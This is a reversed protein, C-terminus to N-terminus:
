DIPAWKEGNIVLDDGDKYIPYSGDQEIGPYSNYKGFGSLVISTGKISYTGTKRSSGGSGLSETIMVSGDEDFTIYYSWSSTGAYKYRGSLTKIQENSWGSPSLVVEGKTNIVIKDNVTAYGDSSFPTVSSYQPPIQWKGNPDIYGWMESEIDKAPCLDKCFDYKKMDSAPSSGWDTSILFAINKQPHMLVNGKSDVIAYFQTGSPNVLTVTAIQGITNDNSSVHNYRYSAESFNEIENIDVNWSSSDPVFTSDYDSINFYIVDDNYFKYDDGMIVVGSGDSSITSRCTLSSFTMDEPTARANSFTAVVSMDKESYYRVTYTKGSLDEDETEVWFYGSSVNGITTVNDQGVKFQVKGERDIIYENDDLDAARVYKEGFRPIESNPNFEYIPEVVVNGKIDIYGYYYDGSWSGSLGFHSNGTSKYIAFAALGNSFSEIRTLNSYQQYVKGSDPSEDSSNDNMNSNDESTTSEDIEGMEDSLDIKCGVTVAMIMTIILLLSAIKKLTM